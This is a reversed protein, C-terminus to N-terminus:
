GMAHAPLIEVGCQAFFAHLDSTAHAFVRVRQKADAVHARLCVHFAQFFRHFNNPRAELSM